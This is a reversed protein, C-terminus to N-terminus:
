GGLAEVAEMAARSVEIDEDWAMRSIQPLVSADGIRGLAEVAWRRTLRDEHDLAGILAPVAIAGLGELALPAEWRILSYDDRLAHTFVALARPDGRRRLIDLAHKRITKKRDHELTHILLEVAADGMGSLKEWEQRAFYLLARDEESGADWGLTGLAEAARARVGADEDRLCAVLPAMGPLHPPVWPDAGEGSLRATEARVDPISGAVVHGKGSVRVRIGEEPCGSEGPHDAAERRAAADADGRVRILSPAADDGGIRGIANLAAARVVNEPEREYLRSLPGLADTCRFEGLADAAQRRMDPDDHHLFRLLLPIAPDLWAGLGERAMSRIRKRVRVPGEWVCVLPPRRERAEIKTLAAVATLQVTPDPSDLALCLRDVARRGIAVLVGEILSPPMEQNALHALLAPVAADGMRVLACFAREDDHRELARLLPFVAAVEGLEGLADAAAARVGPNPHSLADMLSSVAPRGIRSLGRAAEAQIEPVPDSLAGALAGVSSPAAIHKLGRVASLRVLDHEDALTGELIGAAQPGCRHLALVAAHRLTCDPSSLLTKLFPCWAPDGSVGIARLGGKRMRADPSAIAFWLLVPCETSRAMAGLADAAAQRVSMVPDRLLAMLAASAALVQMEGLTTAAAKRISPHSSRLAEVLPNTAGPGIKRLIRRIDLEGGRNCRCFGDILFPVAPAGVGVLLWHAVDKVVGRRDELLDVVTAIWPGTEDERLHRFAQITETDEAADLVRLLTAVDERVPMTFWGM